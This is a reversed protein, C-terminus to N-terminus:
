HQSPPPLILITDPEVYRIIRQIKQKGNNETPQLRELRVMRGGTECNYCVAEYTAHGGKIKFDGDDWGISEWATAEFPRKKNQM